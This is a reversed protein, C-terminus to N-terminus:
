PSMAVYWNDGVKRGQYFGDRIMAVLKSEEMNKQKAFERIPLVGEPPCANDPPTNGSSSSQEGL